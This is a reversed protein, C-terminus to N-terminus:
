FRRRRRIKHKGEKPTGVKAPKHTLGDAMKEEPKTTIGKNKKRIGLKADRQAKKKAEKEKVEDAQDTWKQRYMEGRLKGIMWLSGDMTMDHYSQYFETGHYHSGTDDIDHALEHFALTIVAAAGRNTDPCYSELYKRNFAIFSSGDTWGLATDSLGICLSRGRWCNFKEMVKLFRRESKSLKEVPLIRHFQCVGTSLGDTGDFPRYFKYMSQWSKENQSHKYRYIKKEYEFHVKLLWEFFEEPEGTYDLATLTEDSFCVADGIQMLHDATRDGPSAFTWPSRIKHIQNLSLRKNDTLEFLAIGKIEDYKCDGDRLDLLTSVREDENLRRSARRVKKIRNERIIIQIREWIPCSQMIDNRAFNVLMKTKSVVVGTVGTDSASHNNVFAGINFLSLKNGKGFMFYADDTEVDWDLSSAPTNIQEGNFTIEGEMFEIHHKIKSKFDDMSRYGHGIPNKYFYVTVECGEQHPLNSQLSFDLIHNDSEKAYTREDPDTELDYEMRFTGTRWVNRGFSFAQGRGMRFEAWTRGETKYGCPCVYLQGSLKMTKQCEPCEDHPTGFKAFWQEIENRNKFGRGLDRVVLRANDEDDVTFDISVVPDSDSGMQAEIANMVLELVAKEVSGAQRKIGDIIFKEHASLRITESVMM